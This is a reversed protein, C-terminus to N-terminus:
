SRFVRLGALSQINISVPDNRVWQKEDARGEAERCTVGRRAAGSFFLLSKTQQIAIFM